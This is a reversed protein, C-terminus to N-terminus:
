YRNGSLNRRVQRDTKSLLLTKESLKELGLKAYIRKEFGSINENEWVEPYGNEDRKKYDFATSRDRSLTPVHNLFDLKDSILTHMDDKNHLFMLQELDNFDEGFRALLHDLVANRRRLFTSKNEALTKLFTLYENNPDNKSPKGSKKWIQRKVLVM